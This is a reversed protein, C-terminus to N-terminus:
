EAPVEIRIKRDQEPESIPVRIELVGRDYKASITETDTGAPLTVSRSFSGYRFESHHRDHKREERKASITLTNKSASVEIDKDADLGPLEARVVYSGDDVFDEVHVPHRNASFPWAADFLDVVDPIFTSTPRRIISTM